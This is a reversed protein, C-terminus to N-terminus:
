GHEFHLVELVALGVMQTAALLLFHGNGGRKSQVRLDQHEVLGHVAQVGTGFVPEGVEQDVEVLIALGDYGGGVVQNQGAANGAARQQERRVM